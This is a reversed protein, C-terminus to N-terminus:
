KKNKCWSLLENLIFPGNFIERNSVFASQIDSILGSIVFSLRNVLIKAIVKYLSGILTILHYVVKADHIKPILAIFSSNCGQPFTSSAFFDNVFAIIDHELLKWYRRFFEFTFGDPSPSKNSGCYWVASKIEDNSVNRELNAQQELSLRNTFQDAFFIRLSVPLSFQTYFHKLFLSKVALPDVIWEGDVLTGRIALKYHKNNLIGHFFNKNEDGEIAWRVKSKQAAELSDISNIDNLEKLLLSRNCLIEENSGGQVNFAFGYREQKTRVENFDGGSNGLSSSLACDFSSNGWLTNITVLEMSEIRTEENSTDGKEKENVEEVNIM